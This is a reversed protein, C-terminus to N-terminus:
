DSSEYEGEIMKAQGRLWSIAVPEYRRCLLVSCPARDAVQDDVWGFLRTDLIWEESAGIVILDYARRASELLVGEPVSGAQTIRLTFAAPVNGVQGLNLQRKLKRKSM